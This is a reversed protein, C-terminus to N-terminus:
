SSQLEGTGTVLVKGDDGDSWAADVIACQEGTLPPVLGAALHHSWAVGDPRLSIERSQADYLVNSKERHCEARSMFALMAECQARSFGDVICHAETSSILKAAQENVAAGLEDLTHVGNHEEFVNTHLVDAVLTYREDSTMRPTRVDYGQCRSLQYGDVSGPVWPLTADDWETRKAKGKARTTVARATPASAPEPHERPQQRAPKAKKANPKKHEKSTKPKKAAPMAAIAAAEVDEVHEVHEEVADSDSSDSELGDGAAGRSKRKGTPKKRAGVRTSAINSALADLDVYLPKDADLGRVAYTHSCTGHHVCHKCTCVYCGACAAPGDEGHLHAGAHPKMWAPAEPCSATAQRYPKFTVRHLRMYKSIYEDVRLPRQAPGLRSAGGASTWQGAKGDLSAQFDNIEDQTIAPSGAARARVVWYTGDAGDSVACLADARVLQVAKDVEHAYVMPKDEADLAITSIDGAYMKGQANLFQQLISEQNDSYFVKDFPANTHRWLQKASHNWSELANNNPTAGTTHCATAYWCDWPPTFYQKQMNSAIVKCEARQGETWEPSDSAARWERLVVAALEGFQARSCCRSLADMHGQMVEAYKPPVRHKWQLTTRKVHPWCIVRKLWDAAFTAQFANFMPVSHDSCASHVSKLMSLRKGAGMTAPFLRETGLCASKFLKQIADANESSAFAFAIPRVQHRARKNKKDHYVQTCWHAGATLARSPFNLM